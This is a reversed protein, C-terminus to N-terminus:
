VKRRRAMRYISGIASTVSGANSTLKTLCYLICLMLSILGSVSYGIFSVVALHGSQILRDFGIWGSNLHVDFGLVMPLNVYAFSDYKLWHYAEYILSAPIGMMFVMMFLICVFLIAAWIIRLMQHTLEKVKDM